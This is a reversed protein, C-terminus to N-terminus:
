VTTHIFCTDRAGKKVISVEVVKKSVPKAAQGASQRMEVVYGLSLERCVGNAIFSTAMAGELVSEDVDILCDLQGRANKWASVVKGVSVGKHEVKVPKGVLENSAVCSDIEGQTYYYGEYDNCEGAPNITGWVHMKSVVTVFM